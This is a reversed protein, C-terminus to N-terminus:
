SRRRGLSTVEAWAQAWLTSLEEYEPERGQRGRESAERIWALLLGLVLGLGLGLVLKLVLWM